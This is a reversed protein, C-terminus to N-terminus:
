RGASSASACASTASSAGSRGCRWTPRRTRSRRSFASDARAGACLLLRAADAACRRRARSLADGISHRQADAATRDRDHELGARGADPPPDGPAPRRRSRLHTRHQALARRGRSSLHCRAVRRRADADHRRAGARERDIEDSPMSPRAPMSDAQGPGRALIPAAVSAFMTITLITASMRGGRRRLHALGISLFVLAAVSVLSAGVSMRATTTADLVPGFGNLNLWM